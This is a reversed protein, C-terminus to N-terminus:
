PHGGDRVPGRTLAETDAPHQPPHVRASRGAMRGMAVFGAEDLAARLRHLADPTWTPRAAAKGAQYGVALAAEWVARVVVPDADPFLLEPLKGPRSTAKLMGHAILGALYDGSSQCRDALVQDTDAAASPQPIPTTTM